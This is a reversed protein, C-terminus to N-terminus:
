GIHTPWIKYRDVRRRRDYFTTAAGSKRNEDLKDLDVIGTATMEWNIKTEAIIGAPNEWAMDCPGLISSRAYGSPMPALGPQAGFGVHVFYVQNSICNAQACHRVRWFGQETFTASPCLIIEAGQEALTAQCEPIESEYCINFGVKAFPLQFVKMEDGEETFWDREAPFIHTKAHKYITGDPCFLHGVNLLKGDVKMLHSGGCIFQGRKAAEESFLRVYDDTYKDIIGLESIPTQRWNKFTMFLEVTFLEPFVALDSGQVQNLLARVRGALEEFDAIPRLVYQCVSIKVTNAM